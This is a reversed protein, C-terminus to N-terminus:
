EVLFLGLNVEIVEPRVPDNCLCSIPISVAPFDQSADDNRMLARFDVGLYILDQFSLGFCQENGAIEPADFQGNAGAVYGTLAKAPVAFTM